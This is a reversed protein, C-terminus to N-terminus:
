EQEKVCAVLEDAGIRFVRDNHVFEVVCGHELAAICALRKQSEINQGAPVELRIISIRYANM